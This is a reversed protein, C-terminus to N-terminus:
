NSKVNSKKGKKIDEKIVEVSFYIIVFFVSLYIGWLITGLVFSTLAEPLVVLFWFFILGVTAM